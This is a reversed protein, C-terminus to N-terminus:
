RTFPFRCAPLVPLAELGLGAAWFALAVATELETVARGFSAELSAFAPTFRM